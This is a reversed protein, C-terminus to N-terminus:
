DICHSMTADPLTSIINLVPRLYYARQFPTSETDSCFFIRALLDRWSSNCNTKSLIWGERTFM